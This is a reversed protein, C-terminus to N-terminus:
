GSELVECIDAHQKLQSNIDDVIAQASAIAESSNLPVQEFTECPCWHRLINADECTRNEPIEELLSLGLTHNSREEQTKNLDLLHLMTAHVDFLTMLRDQNIKLNKAIEPNQDLFWKPAHIFMMPMREEFKGIYTYRIDGFRIGHDSFLVLLSNNLAGMDQLDELMRVTPEDQFRAHNLLDHTLTSVMSFAFYPRDDMVKLFDRKYDYIIDPEIQSNLCYPGEKITTEKLGSSYLVVALPRFYYDTPPEKFGRKFYNFTGSGPHDEAFFTRYGRNAYERWIFDLDDFFMEDKVTENWYYDVFHGTLLPVLNPFTNDGVKTYGHMEFPSLKKLFERTNPFHRLYNLKSVSDIGMLIVNLRPSPPNLKNKTEEIDNKLRVLPFFQEFSKNQIKCGVGIYDENLPVGFELLEDPEMNYHEKLVTENLSISGGPKPRMFLPPGPCVLADLHLLLGKLSPDWPDLKPIKCESTDLVLSPNRTETVGLVSITTSGNNSEPDPFDDFIGAKEISRIIRSPTEKQPPSFRDTQLSAVYDLEPHNRLKLRFPTEYESSDSYKPELNKNIEKADDKKPFGTYSDSNRKLRKELKAELFDLLDELGHHYEGPSKVITPQKTELYDDYFETKDSPTSLLNNESDLINNYLIPDPYVNAYTSVNLTGLDQTTHHFGHILQATNITQLVIFPNLLIWLYLM